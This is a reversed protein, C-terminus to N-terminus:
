ITNFLSLIVLYYAGVHYWADVTSFKIRFTTVTNAPIIINPDVYFKDVIPGMECGLGGGPAHGEAILIDNLYFEIKEYIENEKEGIGGFTLAMSKETTTYITAVAEGSQVSSCTGGCNESDEINYMIEYQLGSNFYNYKTFDWPDASCPNDATITWILMDELVVTNHQNFMFNQSYSRISILLLISFIVKRAM